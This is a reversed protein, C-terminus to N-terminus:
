IKKVDIMGTQAITCIVPTKLKMSYHSSVKLKALHDNKDRTVMAHSRLVTVKFGVHGM